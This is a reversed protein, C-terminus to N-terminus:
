PKKLNRCSFAYLLENAILYIFMISGAMAADYKNAYIIFMIIMIISKLIASFIIKSVLFPTFFSGNAHNSPTNEMIDDDAKEFALMIAPISDTLLNIWLLQITTFMEMNLLMSVFVLIVEVINGALLYLIVKKINATIRRGEEVGDVITSFSDDTLICDAVKKVVETGTIGMGIGVHADKIAPADNVGDGTMAVVKGQAQLAKVIREKHIPSVRAYVSYKNVIDILEEDTYEDLKSGLLCEDRSDVIGVRKAIAGATILSDGTIMITRVGAKKALAVSEKVGVRPPDIM